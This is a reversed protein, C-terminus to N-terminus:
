KRRLKKAIADLQERRADDVYEKATQLSAWQMHEQTAVLDGKVLDNFHKAYTRRLRHTYIDEVEIGVEEACAKLARYCRKWAAHARTHPHARPSVLDWVHKWRPMGDLTELYEAMPEASYHLWREGKARYSLLGTRVANKVERPTLRLVDTCRLGRNAIIGLVARLADDEERDIADRLANWKKKSLATKPTIRVARPLKIKKLRILLAGDDRYEAFSRLAALIRRRTKPALSQDRLRATPDGDAYANRVDSIYGEVTGAARNYEELHARFGDLDRKKVTPMAPKM